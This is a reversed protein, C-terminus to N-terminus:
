EQETWFALMARACDEVLDRDEAGFADVRDAAVDITGIVERTAPVVVPVIMESRTAASTRIYRPDNAVDNAVVTEGSKAAAGCLGREVPFRPHEPAAAGSYGVLRVEGGAIDYLGVFDYGRAGAIGACLEQATAERADSADVLVALRNLLRRKALLAAAVPDRAVNRYFQLAGSPCKQIAAAVRAADAAEPQVWRSRRVDFVPPLTMLCVGSHQCVNPDFTVTIDPTEYVQLRKTM